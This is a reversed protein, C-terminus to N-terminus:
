FRAIVQARVNEPWRAVSGPTGELVIHFQSAEKETQQCQQQEGRLLGRERVADGVCTLRQRRLFLKRVGIQAALADTELLQSVRHGAAGCRGNREVQDGLLRDAGPVRVLRALNGREM